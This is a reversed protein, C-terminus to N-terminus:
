ATCLQLRNLGPQSAAIVKRENLRSPQVTKLKSKFQELSTASRTELSLANWAAPGAFSFGCEGYNRRVRPCALMVHADPKHASRLRAMAANRSVRTLLEKIYAPSKSHFAKYVTLCLKNSIRQQFRLWHLRDRLLPTIHATRTGGFILRASANLIRGHSGRVM